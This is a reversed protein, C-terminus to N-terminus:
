TKVETKITYKFSDILMKFISIPNRPCSYPFLKSGFTIIMYLSWILYYLRDLKIKLLLKLLPICKDPLYCFIPGLLVLRLQFAKEQETYCNLTSKLQFEAAVSLERDLLRNQIAYETLKTKPYPCFIGFTPVSIRLKKAFLFTDLDQKTTTGPIGFMSNSQTKINYKRTYEFSKIIAGDSISRDLIEKRVNENGTEISMSIAICRMESLLKAMDETLVDPRMLCYFPLSIEKRYERSFDILWKDIRYAFTDDAFRIMRVPPYNKILYKIEDIVSAVSRRRLVKGCERFMENYASNYCYACAYPCGRSTLVSRLGSMKYYPAAEYFFARDVFPLSDLNAILEKGPKLNSNNEKSLVNPIGLLSKRNRLNDIIGIIANDGEGICVADLECEALINPFYTPHPGGMIRTVTKNSRKIYEKVLDDTRIFLGVSPTMASYAIIDPNYEDIAKLVPTKILSLLKTQHGQQRCISSLQMLGLPESLLIKEVVFLIRM